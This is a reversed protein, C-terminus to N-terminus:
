NPLTFNFTSGENPKSDVWIKGGHLELIKQCHALGIGTGEYEKKSHLRQFIAFIREQYQQEIGIGNDIVSFKIDDTRQEAIIQIKPPIGEKKFKLANSILNQFLLRLEIEHGTIIPLQGVNIEAATDTISVKMDEQISKLLLSCDVKTFEKNRGLSSYDLLGNVLSKMRNTSSIIFKLYQDAEKDLKGKYKQELLESFSAITRIPEQLDHSAVYAFQELEKNKSELEESYKKEAEETEKLKTIDVHSEVARLPNWEDDWEIVKGRCYV